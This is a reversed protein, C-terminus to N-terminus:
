TSRAQRGLESAMEGPAPATLPRSCFSPAPIDCGLQTMEIQAELSRRFLRSWAESWPMDGTEHQLYGTVKGFKVHAAHLKLRLQDAEEATLVAFVDGFRMAQTTM